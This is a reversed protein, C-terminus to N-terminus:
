PAGPKWCGKSGPWGHLAKGQRSAIVAGRSGVHVPILRRLLDKLEGKLSLRNLSTSSSITRPETARSRRRVKPSMHGVGDGQIGVDTV